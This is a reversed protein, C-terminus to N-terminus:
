AATVLGGPSCPDCGPICGIKSCLPCNSSYEHTGGICCPPLGGTCAGSGVGNYKSLVNAYYAATGTVTGPNFALTGGGGSPGSPRRKRRKGTGTGQYAENADTQGEAAAEAEEEEEENPLLFALFGAVIQALGIALCALFIDGSSARLLIPFTCCSKSVFEDSQNLLGSV